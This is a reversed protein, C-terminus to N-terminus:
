VPGQRENQGKTEPYQTDDDVIYRMGIRLTQLALHREPHPDDERERIQQSKVAQEIQVPLSNALVDGTPTIAQNRDETEHHHHTEDDVIIALAGKSSLGFSPTVLPEEIINM